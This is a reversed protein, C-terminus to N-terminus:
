FSHIVPDYQYCSNTGYNYYKDKMSQPNPNVYKYIKCNKGECSKNFVTSLGLGFLISFFITGAQTNFVEYLM